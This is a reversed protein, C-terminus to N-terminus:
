EQAGEELQSLRFGTKETLVVRRTVINDGDHLRYLYLGAPMPRGLDSIGDWVTEYRGAPQYEGDILVRVQQGLLNYITLRVASADSIQYRIVAESDVSQTESLQPLNMENQLYYAAGSPQSHKSASVCASSALLIVVLFLFLSVQLPRLFQTAPKYVLRHRTNLLQKKM